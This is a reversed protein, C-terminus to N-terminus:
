DKSELDVIKMKYTFKKEEDKKVRVTAVPINRENNNYPESSSIVTISSNEYDESPSAYSRSINTNVFPTLAIDVEIDENKHNRLVIEYDIETDSKSVRKKSLVSKQVFIDYAAGVRIEVKEDKSTHAIKNEGIFQSSEGDAKFVRAIGDPLPIGLKNEKSNKFSLYVGINDGYYYQYKKTVPVKEIEFLSIQKNEKNKITTPFPLTYEHYEFVPKEVIGSFGASGARVNVLGNDKEIYEIDVTRKVQSIKGGILKVNANEFSGGSNNDISVWALFNMYKESEDLTGVYEAHWSIGETMYSFEADQDGSKKGNLLWHLTPKTILDAPLNPTSIQYGDMQTLMTLGGDSNRIIIQSQDKQWITGKKPEVASLLTGKITNPGVLIIEKDIYKNLIKYVDVLDYNYNQEVVDGDFKLKISTPEIKEPIGTLEAEFRGQRSPLSLKERVVGLDQNYITLAVSKRQPAQANLSLASIFAIFLLSFTTKM